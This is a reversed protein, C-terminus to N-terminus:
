KIKGKSAKKQVLRTAHALSDFTGADSWFGKVFEADMKNERIYFNNIDTIELEGRRSPKLTKIINFVRSDFLYFGTVAHQSSPNKPKETVKIVKRGQLTAVGFREPDSVKKFFLRAGAQFSRVQKTFNDEFINDGLIVAVSEKAAFKEALGLAQAIGKAEDQIRYSIQMGFNKGSGLLQMFSGAHESGTVILIDRLGANKLTMLPYFVMPQNYVPLLHKNTVLTLPHLRSGTGGALLIGKM